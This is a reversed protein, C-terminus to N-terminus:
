NTPLPFEAENTYTPGQSSLVSRVLAFHTIEFPNVRFRAQTAMFDNVPKVPKQLKLRALTIHPHFAKKDPPFGAIRLENEIKKQLDKLMPQSAIGVWLVRPTKKKQPPFRGVSQLKLNFSPSQVLELASKVSEVRTDPVDDLFRLTLHMHEPKVWRATPIHTKLAVLNAKVDSPLEIAVFLRPM